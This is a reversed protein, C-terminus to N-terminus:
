PRVVLSMASGGPIRVVAGNVPRGGLEVRATAPVNGLTVTKGPVSHDRRLRAHLVGDIVEAASVEVDRDVEALTPEAFHATDWPRNYLSWMGDPVNLRAYGLLVNGSLPEIATRNGDSDSPTDCRPYYM